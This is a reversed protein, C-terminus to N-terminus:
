SELEPSTAGRAFIQEFVEAVDGFRAALTGADLGEVLTMWDFGHDHSRLQREDTRINTADANTRLLSARVIRDSSMIGSLDSPAMRSGAGALIPAVLAGHGYGESAEVRGGGRRFNTLMPMIRRSWPTPDNLRALYATSAMVGAHDLTYLIFFRRFETSISRFLRVERFGPIALREQAHERTMWHLYDTEREAPVDSWIALFGQGTMM